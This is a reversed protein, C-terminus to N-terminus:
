PRSIQRIMLFAHNYFINKNFISRGLRLYAQRFDGEIPYRFLETSFQDNSEFNILSVSIYQSIGKPEVLFLVRENDYMQPAISIPKKNLIKENNRLDIRRWEFNNEVKKIKFVFLQIRM